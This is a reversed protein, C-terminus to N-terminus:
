FKEPEVRNEAFQTEILGPPSAHSFLVSGRNKRYKESPIEGSYIEVPFYECRVILAVPNSTGKGETNAALCTFNGATKRAVSQLVLSQDSLIVGASVNHHIEDGQFLLRLKVISCFRRYERLNITRPTAHVGSLAAVLSPGHLQLSIARINHPEYPVRNRCTFSVLAMPCFSNEASTLPAPLQSCRGHMHMRLNTGQITTTHHNRKCGHQTQNLTENRSLVIHNLKRELSHIRDFKRFHMSKRFTM